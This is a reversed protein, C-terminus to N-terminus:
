INSNILIEISTLLDQECDDLACICEKQLFYETGNNGDRSLTSFEINYITDKKLKVGNISCGDNIAKIKAYNQRIKLM